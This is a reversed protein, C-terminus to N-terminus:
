PQLITFETGHGWCYSDDTAIVRMRFYENTGIYDFDNVTWMYTGSTPDVGAAIRGVSEFGAYLWLDVNGPVGGMSFVVEFQTGETLQQHNSPYYVTVDCINEDVIRIFDSEAGCGAVENDTIRLRYFDFSGNQFSTVPWAFFGDDETNYSIVGIDGIAKFMELKVFGSSNNSDWTIDLIDDRVFVTDATDAVAGTFTFNCGLTNILQFPGAEDSCSEDGIATVSVTFQNGGNELFTTVQWKYYGDNATSEHITGVWIGNNKLDIRVFEADGATDWRITFFDGYNWPGMAGTPASIAISCDETPPVVTDDSSDCGFFVLLSIFVLVSLFLLGRFNM